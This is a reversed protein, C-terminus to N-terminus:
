YFSGSIPNPCLKVENIAFRHRIYIPMSGLVRFAQEVSVFKVLVLVIKHDSEQYSSVFQKKIEM